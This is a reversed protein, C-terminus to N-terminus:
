YDKKVEAMPKLIQIMSYHINLLGMALEMKQKTM